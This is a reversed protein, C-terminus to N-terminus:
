TAQQHAERIQRIREVGGAPLSPQVLGGIARRSVDVGIQLIHLSVVAGVLPDFRQFGTLRVLTVGVFGAVSTLVEAQLHRADAELAISHADRSVRMLLRATLYNAVAAAALM